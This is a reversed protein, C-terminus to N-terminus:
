IAYCLTTKATEMNPSRIGDVPHRLAGEVTGDLMVVMEPTM